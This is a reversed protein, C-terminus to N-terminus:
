GRLAGWGLAVHPQHRLHDLTVLFITNIPRDDTPCLEVLRGADVDDAVLYSPLASLGVGALVLRRVAHLDPVTIAPAAPPRRRLVHRWWRRTISQQEDYTVRPVQALARAPDDRLLRADLGRAVAPAAVLLFEEDDLTVSHTKGRPRVTSVVLDLHGQRLRSLLDDALGLAVEVRVGAETVRTLRPALVEATEPSYRAGFPGRRVM